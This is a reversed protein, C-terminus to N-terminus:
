IVVGRTVLEDIRQRNMKLLGELVDDRHQSLGPPPSLDWRTQQPPGVPQNMSHFRAVFSRLGRIEPTQHNPETQSSELVPLMLEAAAEQELAQQMNNVAGAPIGSEALKRLLEDRSWALIAPALIAHLETRHTVRLPGTVFQPQLELGLLSVLGAFQEDSGVALVLQSGDRTEFLTGYPTINPHDSGTAQPMQGTVLWNSAQNALSALAAQILSVSVRSGEGTRMRKMLALLIGEKLQHGALLDMLAVPMKYIMDGEGNLYTFGAEAQIVADYAPRPNDEGYGNIEGIVLDAKLAKLSVPDMGLVRASGPKFNTLIVDSRRILDKVLAQGRQDQLNVALSQKGWNVSSFYASVRNRTEAEGQLRWARTVDGATNLNEIKIVRAGLEALFMGVSPGALVSALELVVLDQLM